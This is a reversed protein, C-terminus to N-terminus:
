TSSLPYQKALQELACFDVCRLSVADNPFRKKKEYLKKAKVDINLTNIQSLERKLLDIYQSKEQDSKFSRHKDIDKYELNQIMSKPIPFMYNLNVVAALRDPNVPNRDPLFVKIFDPANRMAAHRPQAHSIQTVYALDGEEFLVGFFPKYKDTGYDSYPIRRETARLYNLYKEDIVVWNQM